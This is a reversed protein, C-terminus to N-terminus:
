VLSLQGNQTLNSGFVDWALDAALALATTEAALVDHVLIVHHSPDVV